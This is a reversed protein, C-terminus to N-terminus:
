SGLVWNHVKRIFTLIIKHLNNCVLGFYHEEVVNNSFYLLFQVRLDNKIYQIGFVALLKHFLLKNDKMVTSISIRM